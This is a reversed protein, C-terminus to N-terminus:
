VDEEYYTSGFKDRERRIFVCDLEPDDTECYRRQEQYPVEFVVVPLHSFSYKFSVDLGQFLSAETHQAELCFDKAIGPEPWGSTLHYYALCAADETNIFIELLEGPIEGQTLTM